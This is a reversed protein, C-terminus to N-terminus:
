WTRVRLAISTSLGGELDDKFLRNNSTDRLELENGFAYGVGVSLWVDRFIRREAHVRVTYSSLDLQQSVGANDINWSNGFPRVRLALVWDDVPRWTANFLVGMLSVDMEDNPKWYFGPGGLVYADSGLELGVVGLGFLFRETVMYGGGLAVDFYFDDGSVDQTDSAFNARAWAGYIWRSDSPNNYLTAHLGIEHLDEDGLPFGAPTNSFDLSTMSYQFMPLFSWDGGLALPRSLFAALGFRSGDLEAGSNDFGLGNQFEYSALLADFAPMFSDPKSVGSEVAAEPTDSVQVGAFAATPLALALILSRRTAKM